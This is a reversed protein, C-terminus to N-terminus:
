SAPPPKCRGEQCTLGAACECDDGCPGAVRTVPDYSPLCMKPPPCSSGDLCGWTGCPGAVECVAPGTATSCDATTECGTWLRVTGPATRCEGNQCTLRSACECDRSCPAHEGTTRNASGLCVGSPTGALGDPADCAARDECVVPGSAPNCDSTSRCAGGRPSFATVPSCHRSVCAEGFGCQSDSRCKHRGHRHRRGNVKAGAPQTVTPLAAGAVLAALVARRGASRALSRALTDAFHEDSM